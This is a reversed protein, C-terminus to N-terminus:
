WVLGVLSMSGAVGGRGGDLVAVVLLWRAGFM